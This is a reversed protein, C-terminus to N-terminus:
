TGFSRDGLCSVLDAYLNNCGLGQEDNEMNALQKASAIASEASDALGLYTFVRTLIRDKIHVKWIKM